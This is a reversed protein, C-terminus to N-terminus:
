NQPSYKKQKSAVRKFAATAGFMIVMSIVSVSFFPIFGPLFSLLICFLLLVIVMFISTHLNLIGIYFAYKFNQLFKLEFHVYVPFLYLLTLFFCSIIILLPVGLVTQLNGEISVVLRLDYFLFSGIAVIFLGLFNARFFEKKYTQFFTQFIPIDTESMTWKRVVTFLALTAPMIGLLVFGTLTFLIWLLNVIVVKSIWDCVNYAKGILRDMQVSM